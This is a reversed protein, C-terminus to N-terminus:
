KAGPSGPKIMKPLKGSAIAEKLADASYLFFISWSITTKNLQELHWKLANLETLLEPNVSLAIKHQYPSVQGRKQGKHLAHLTLSM